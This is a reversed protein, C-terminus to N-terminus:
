KTNWPDFAAKPVAFGRKPRATYVPESPRPTGPASIISTSATSISGSGSIASLGAGSSEMNAASNSGGDSPKHRKRDEKDSINSLLTGLRKRSLQRRTYWTEDDLNAWHEAGLEWEGMNEEANAESMVENSLDSLESEDPGLFMDHDQASVGSGSSLSNRRSASQGVNLVDPELKVDVEEISIRSSKSEAHDTVDESKVSAFRASRHRPEVASVGPEQKVVIDEAGSGDSDLLSRVVLAGLVHKPKRRERAKAVPVSRNQRRKPTPLSNQHIDKAPAPKRLRELGIRTFSQLYLM